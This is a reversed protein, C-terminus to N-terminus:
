SYFCGPSSSFKSKARFRNGNIGSRLISAVSFILVDEKIMSLFTEM